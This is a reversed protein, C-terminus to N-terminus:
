TVRRIAARDESVVDLPETPQVLQAVDYVQVDFSLREPHDGVIYVPFAAVYQRPQIRYFYVLPLQGQMASRLSRNDPHAPDTGRCAYSLTGGGGM